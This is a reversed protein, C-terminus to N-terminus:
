KCMIFMPIAALSSIIYYQNFCHGTIGESLRCDGAAEEAPQESAAETGPPRLSDSELNLLCAKGPSTALGGKALGEQMGPVTSFAQDREDGLCSRSTPLIIIEM